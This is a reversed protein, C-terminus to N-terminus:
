STDDSQRHIGRMNYLLWIGSAFTAVVGLVGLWSWGGASQSTSALLISSGVILAATVLGVTLRNSSREVREGFEDLRRMELNIALQGTAARKTLRLVSQPIAELADAALGLQRYIRGGFARPQWRDRIVSKIYPTLHQVLKFEPDLKAGLGELTILAKFLLALDAPLVVRHDRMIGGIESLLRGLRVEQLSARGYMYILRGLDDAFREEDVSAGDVWGLLVDVMSVSDRRSLAALLNVLEDRRKPSLWGVMGFDIFAVRNDPLYIVNGPHPDAHFFGDIVVMKLVADAGRAALQKRDLGAGALADWATGAVGEIWEQVMLDERTFSAFVKPVVVDASAKFNDRFREQSQAEATFDVERALSHRLQRVLEVPQFRRVTPNEEQWWHALTEFLALDSQILPLVGPRRIKVAVATGDPLRGYHVHAISGSARPVEEFGAFAQAASTGLSAELQGRLQEFPVPAVHDHLTELEAIWDPPLLDVRSALIQGLKVFTPGLTELAMRFRAPLALKQVAPDMKWGLLDGARDVARHIGAAHVLDHLGFRLGVRLVESLRPLSKLSDLSAFAM